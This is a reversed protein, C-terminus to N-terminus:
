FPLRCISETKIIISRERQPHSIPIGSSSPSSPPRPNPILVNPGFSMYNSLSLPSSEPGSKSLSLSFRAGVPDYCLLTLEYRLEYTLIPCRSHVLGRDLFSCHQCCFTLRKNNSPSSPLIRFYLSPKPSPVDVHKNTRESRGCSSYPQSSIRGIFVPIVLAIYPSAKCCDM